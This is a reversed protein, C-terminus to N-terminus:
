DFSTRDSLAALALLHDAGRQIERAVACAALRARAVAEAEDSGLATIIVRPGDASPAYTGTLPRTHDSEPPASTVDPNVDFGGHRDLTFTAQVGRHASESATVDSSM